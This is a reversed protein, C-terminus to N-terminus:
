KAKAKRERKPKAPATTESTTEPATQAAAAAPEGADDPFLEAQDAHRGAVEPVIKQALMDVLERSKPIYCEYQDASVFALVRWPNAARYLTAPTGPQELDVAVYIRSKDDALDEGVSIPLVGKIVLEVITTQKAIEVMWRKRAVHGQAQAPSQAEVLRPKAEASKRDRLVYHRTPTKQQEQM